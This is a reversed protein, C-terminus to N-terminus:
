AKLNERPEEKDCSPDLEYDESRDRKQLRAIEGCDLAVLEGRPQGIYVTHLSVTLAAFLLSLFFM